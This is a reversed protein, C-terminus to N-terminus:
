AFVIYTENRYQYKNLPQLSLVIRHHYHYLPTMGWIDFMDRGYSLLKNTKSPNPDKKTQAKTM